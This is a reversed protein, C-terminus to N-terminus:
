SALSRQAPAVGTGKVVEYERSALIRELASLFALVNEAKSSDSMLGVRWVRGM